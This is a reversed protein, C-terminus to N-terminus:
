LNPSKPVIPSSCVSFCFIKDILFRGFIFYWEESLANNTKQWSGETSLLIKKILKDYNYKSNNYGARKVIKIERIKLKRDFLITYLCSANQEDGNYNEWYLSDQYKRLSENGGIYSIETSVERLRKRFYYSTYMKSSRATDLILEFVPLNTETDFFITKEIKKKYSSIDSSYIISEEVLKNQGYLLPPLMIFMFFLKLKITM